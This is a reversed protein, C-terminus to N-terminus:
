NKHHVQLMRRVVIEWVYFIGNQAPWWACKDNDTCSSLSAHSDSQCLSTVHTTHQAAQPRKKRRIWKTNITRATAGTLLEDGIIVTSIQGKNRRIPRLCHRTCSNVHTCSHVRNLTILMVRAFLTPTSCFYYVFLATNLLAYDIFLYKLETWNSFNQIQLACHCRFSNSLPPM